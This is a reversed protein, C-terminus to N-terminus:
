IIEILETPAASLVRCGGDQVVVLDEIRVGFSGKLYVGPEITIVSGSLVSRRGRPSVTPLEHVDIGVGHGLGHGFFEALGRESLVYRAAQDIEVGPVGGRAAKRGALNAALVADYVRRFEETAPGGVVVTRTMDSCYGGVRAGFDLIVPDGPQIARSGVVTHPRSGNPGSAVISPFAVGESGNRRMFVELELAIETETKGPAIMGLIHDFARDTLAAARSIREVEAAEKVERLEEVWDDVAEVKGSFRESIFRFRGFPVSSEIALTEIGNDQLDNCIEVYISSSPAQISWPTSAAAQTAAEAYRSDTFIRATEPTILCAVNANDDFVNELGTVYRVNFVNSLLIAGQGEEALRRRLASLRVDANM